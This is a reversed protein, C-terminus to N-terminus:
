LNKATGITPLCLNVRFLTCFIIVGQQPKGAIITRRNSADATATSEEICGEIKSKGNVFRNNKGTGDM